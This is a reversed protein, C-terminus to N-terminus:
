QERVMDRMFRASKAAAITKAVARHAVMTLSVVSFIGTREVGAPATTETLQPSAGKYPPSVGVVIVTERAAVGQLTVMALSPYRSFRISKSLCRDRAVEAFLTAAAGAPTTPASTPKITVLVTLVM